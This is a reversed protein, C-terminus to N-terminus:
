FEPQFTAHQAGIPTDFAHAANPFVTLEVDAGAARLREVYSKCIAIPNYDNPLGGFIAIPRAVVDTDTLLSL